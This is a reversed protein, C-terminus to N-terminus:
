RRSPALTRPPPWPIASSPPCLIHVTRTALLIAQLAANGIFVNAEGHKTCLASLLHVVHLYYASISSNHRGPPTSELVHYHAVSTKTLWVIDASINILPVQLPYRPIFTPNDISPAGGIANLVNAAQVMHLMEEMVVSRLTEAEFSSQNIISYLTTLYLPITSHEM